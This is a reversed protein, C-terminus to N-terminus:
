PPPLPFLMVKNDWGSTVITRNELQLVFTVPGEDHGRFWGMIESTKENWLAVDKGSEASAIRGDRLQACRWPAALHGQLCRSRVPDPVELVYEKGDLERMVEVTNSMDYIHIKHDASYSTVALGHPWKHLECVTRGELVQLELWLHSSDVKWIRVTGDWSSTAVDGTELQCIQWIGKTHGDNKNTNDVKNKSIIRPVLAYDGEFAWLRITTDESGSILRGDKLQLVATVSAKHGELTIECEQEPDLDLNWIKISKDTSCSVIRGACSTGAQRPKKASRLLGSAQEDPASPPKSGGVSNLVLRKKELAASFQADEKLMTVGLVGGVHGVLEKECEGTAVNWVRLTTDLSASVVRGNGADCLAYVAHKHGEMEMIPFYSRVV